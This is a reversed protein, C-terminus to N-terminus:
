WTKIAAWSSFGTKVADWSTFHISMGEWTNELAYVSYHVPQSVITTNKVQNWSYEARNLCGWNATNKVDGWSYNTTIQVAM